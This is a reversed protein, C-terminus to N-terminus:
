NDGSKKKEIYSSLNNISSILEVGLDEDDIQIHFEDEVMLFIGIADISNISLEDIINDDDDVSIETLELCKTIIEKVHLKIENKNM